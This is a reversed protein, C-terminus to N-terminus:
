TSPDFADVAMGQMNFLTQARLLSGLGVGHAEHEKDGATRIGDERGGGHLDSSVGILLQYSGPKGYPLFNDTEQM